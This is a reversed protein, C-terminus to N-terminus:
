SLFRNEPATNCKRCVIRLDAYTAKEYKTHHIDFKGEIPHKGVECYSFDRGDRRMMAVVIDRLTSLRNERHITRRSM